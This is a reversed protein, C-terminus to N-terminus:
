VMIGVVRRNPHLASLSALFERIFKPSVRSQMRVALAVRNGPTLGVVVTAPPLLSVLGLQRTTQHTVLYLLERGRGKRCRPFLRGTSCLEEVQAEFTLGLRHFVRRVTDVSPSYAPLVERLETVLQPLTWISPTSSGSSGHGVLRGLLRVGDEKEISWPPRGVPRKVQPM